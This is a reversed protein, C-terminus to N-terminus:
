SLTFDSNLPMVFTFNSFYSKSVISSFFLQGSSFQRVFHGVFIDSSNLFENICILPKVAVIKVTKFFRHGNTSHIVHYM